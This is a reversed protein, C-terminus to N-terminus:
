RSVPRISKITVAPAAGGQQQQEEAAKEVFEALLSDPTAGEGYFEALARAGAANGLGRLAQLRSNRKQSLMGPQDGAIRFNIRRDTDYEGANIAAGSEKRLRAETFARQAQRYKQGAESQLFNEVFGPTWESVIGEYDGIKTEVDRADREAQLMRNFYSLATKEAGTPPKLGHTTSKERDWNLRDRNLNITAETLARTAAANADRSARDADSREKAAAREAEKDLVEQTGTFEFHPDAGHDDAGHSKFLPATDGFQTLNRHVDPNVIAGKPTLKIAGQVRAREILKRQEAKAEDSERNRRATEEQQARRLQSTEALQDRRFAEQLRQAEELRQMEREALLEAIRDRRAVSAGVSAGGLAGYPQFPYAM